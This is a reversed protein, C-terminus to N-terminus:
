AFDATRSFFLGGFVDPLVDLFWHDTEDAALGRRRAAAHAVGAGDDGATFAGGRLLHGRHSRGPNVDYFAGGVDACLYFFDDGMWRIALANYTSRSGEGDKRSMRGPSKPPAPM